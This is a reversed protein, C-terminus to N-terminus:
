PGRIMGRRNRRVRPPKAAAAVRLAACPSFSLASWGGFNLTCARRDERPIVEVNGKCPSMEKNPMIGEDGLYNVTWTSDLTPLTSGSIVTTGEGKLEKQDVQPSIFNARRGAYTVPM